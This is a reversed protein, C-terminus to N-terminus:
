LQCYLAPVFKWRVMAVTRERRKPEFIYRLRQFIKRARPSFTCILCVQTYFVMNHSVTFVYIIYFISLAQVAPYARERTICRM